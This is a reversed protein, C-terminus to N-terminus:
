FLDQSSSGCGQGGPRPEKVSSGSPRAAEACAHTYM